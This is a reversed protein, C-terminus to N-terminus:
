LPPADGAAGSYLDVPQGYGHRGPLHFRHVGPRRCLVSDLAGCDTDGDAAHGHHTGRGRWLGIKRYQLLLLLGGAALLTRYFVMEVAPISILVGLIATFGWLLVIFHLQVYDKPQASM